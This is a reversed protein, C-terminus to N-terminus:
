LKRMQYNPYNSAIAKADVLSSTLALAVTTLASLSLQM